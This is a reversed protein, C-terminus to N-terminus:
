RIIRADRSAPVMPRVGASPWGHSRTVKGAQGRPHDAPHGCRNVGIDLHDIRRGSNVDVPIDRDHQTVTYRQPDVHEPRLGGEGLTGPHRHDHGGM